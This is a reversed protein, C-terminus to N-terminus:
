DADPPAAKPHAADFEEGAEEARVIRDYTPPHTSLCAVRTQQHSDAPTGGAGEDPMASESEEMGM